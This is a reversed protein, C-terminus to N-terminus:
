EKQLRICGLDWVLHLLGSQPVVSLLESGPMHREEASRTGSGAGSPPRSSRSPLGYQFVDRRYPLKCSDPIRIYVGSVLDIIVLAGVFLIGLKCFCGHPVNKM